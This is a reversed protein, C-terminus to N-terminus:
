PLLQFSTTWICSSSQARSAPAKCLWKSNGVLSYSPEHCTGSHPLSCIIQQANGGPASRTTGTGSGGSYFLDVGTTHLTSVVLLTTRSSSIASPGHVSSLDILLRESVVFTPHQPCWFSVSFTFDYWWAYSHISYGALGVAHTVQMTERSGLSVCFKLWFISRVAHLEISMYGCVFCIEPRIARMPCM